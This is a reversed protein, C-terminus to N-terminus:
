EVRRCEVVNEVWDLSFAYDVADAMSEAEVEVPVWSGDEVLVTVVWKSIPEVTLVREPNNRRVVDLYDVPEDCDDEFATMTKINRMVWGTRSLLSLALCQSEVEDGEAARWTGRDARVCGCRSVSRDARDYLEEVDYGASEAKGEDFEITFSWPVPRIGM